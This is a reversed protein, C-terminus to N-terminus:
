DHRLAIIPDVRTARRAPVYSAVLAVVGLLVSVSAYTLPETPAVGYVLGTMMRSAAFALGLGIGLGVLTLRLYQGLVLRLLEGGRAGLAMRIGFERTRHSVAHAIVGSLGVAALLLALVAFGATVLMYFRPQSLAEGVLAELPRVNGLPLQADLARVEERVRGVLSLPDAKTRVVVTMRGLTGQSFPVYVQPFSAKELGDHRVDGVVGVVEGGFRGQGVNVGVEVTRGLPDQGPWYRRAAEESILVARRGEGADDGSELWRGRLLRLRLTQTYGPTVISVQAGWSEGPRAEPLAMDRLTSAITRGALPLGQIAGVSEVGPLARLRELLGDYFGRTAPTGWGYAGRPLDLEFSLVGQPEFGPDVDQLRQFGQLLMGGCVLLVVALATEGVILAHRMRGGGRTGGKAGVEQLSSGPHERSAQLAPLLGFLLATFLGLGCTFALVRGDIAVQELGPIGQPSLGVLVDLLWGALLVGLGSGLAALVVSEVLLQRVIHGRSAGLAMRVSLEGRRSVSRALLLNSLNACAILLVLGVAGLLMLLAPRARGVLADRLPELSARYGTNSDPYERELQRAVESLDAQAAELTVDPNLRAYVRLSHNGRAGPDTFEENWVFPVWLQSKLPFDFGQRAVGVVTHPEGGLMLTSGLVEPAANFRRLWLEHGLVVVRERGPQADEPRFARGLQAPVGLVEFFDATSYAGRLREPADGDGALTLESGRLATMGSFSRTRTRFDTFDPPSTPRDGPSGDSSYLRVLREPEGMPLPRLLVADVVSFIASNAGVGLALTLVAVLTFGPSGRLRRLSLRFEQALSTM